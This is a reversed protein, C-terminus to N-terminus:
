IPPHPICHLFSEHTARLSHFEYFKGSYPVVNSAPAGPSSTCRTLYSILYLEIISAILLLTFSVNVFSANIYDNGTSNNSSNLLM